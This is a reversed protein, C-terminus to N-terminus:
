MLRKLTLGERVCVCLCVHLCYGLTFADGTPLICLEAVLLKYWDGLFWVFVMFICLLSLGSFPHSSKMRNGEGMYMYGVHCVAECGDM